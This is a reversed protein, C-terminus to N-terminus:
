WKREREGENRGSMGEREGNMKIKEREEVV